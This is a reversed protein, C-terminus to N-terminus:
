EAAIATSLRTLIDVIATREDANLADAMRQEIASAGADADALVREGRDTLKLQVINSHWPHPSREMLGREELTKLVAAMAQPTTLCQKAVTAPSIGPEASVGLLAAYQAITLGQPKIAAQKAAMLEQEVRKLHLGLRENAPLTM